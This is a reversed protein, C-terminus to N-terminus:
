SDYPPPVPPVSTSKCHEFSLPLHAEWILQIIEVIEPVATLIARWEGSTYDVRTLSLCHPIAALRLSEGHEVGKSSHYFCTSRYIFNATMFPPQYDNVLKSVQWEGSGMESPYCHPTTHGMSMLQFLQPLVISSDHVAM